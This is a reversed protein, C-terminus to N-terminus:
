QSSVVSKKPVSSAYAELLKSVEELLVSLESTKGYGLDQTLLLYYRCEELSSQSINYMRVKDKVGLRKFGEAINAPISVSARRLQSSLGYVEDRPFNSTLLYVKLVFDHAKQWVVLDSFKKSKM